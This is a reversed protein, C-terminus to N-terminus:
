ERVGYRVLAWAAAVVVAAVILFAPFGRAEIVFGAVVPVTGTGVNVAAARLGMLTGRREAPVLESVLALLAAGRSASLVGVPVGIAAVLILTDARALVGLGVAVLATAWLVYVRKGLRDAVPGLLASGAASIVGLVIWMLGQEGKGLLGRADLWTPLFQVTAFFAGSYLAVSLLAPTVSAERMVRLQAGPSAVGSGRAAPVARWLGVLTLLAAVVQVVFIGRWNEWEAFAIAIPMGVPVALLIAGTVLGMALGRRAYPVLDAVASSASTLVVGAVFGSAIRVALLSVFGDAVLYGVSALLFVATGSLLMPRRGLRDILPGLLFAGVAGALGAAGVLTGLQGEDFGYAERLYPNLAAFVNANLSMAFCSAALAAVAFVHVAPPSEPRNVAPGTGSRSAEPSGHM